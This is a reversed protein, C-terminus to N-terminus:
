ATWVSKRRRAKSRRKSQLAILHQHTKSVQVLPVLEATRRRTRNRGRSQSRRGRKWRISWFIGCTKLSGSRPLSQTRGISRTCTKNSALWFEEPPELADTIYRVIRKSDAEQVYAKLGFEDMTKYVKMVLGAMMSTADPLSTDLKIKAMATDLPRLDKNEAVEAEKFYMIWDYDTVEHPEKGFEFQAIHDRVWPDICAWIPKLFPRSQANEFALLQKYYAEYKLKFDRKEQTSFGSFTPPKPLHPANIYRGDNSVDEMDVDNSMMSVARERTMEGEFPGYPDMRILKKPARRGMEEVDSLERFMDESTQSEFTAKKLISSIINKNYTCYICVFFM